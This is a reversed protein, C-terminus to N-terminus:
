VQFLKIRNDSRGKRAATEPKANGAKIQTLFENDRDHCFTFDQLVSPIYSKPNTTKAM